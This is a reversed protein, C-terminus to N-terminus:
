SSEKKNIDYFITLTEFSPQAQTQFISSPALNVWSSIFVLLGTLYANLRQLYLIKICFYFSTKLCFSLTKYKIISLNVALSLSPWGPRKSVIALGTPFPLFKFDYKCIHSVEDKKSRVLTGWRKDSDAIATLGHSLNTAVPEMNSPWMLM